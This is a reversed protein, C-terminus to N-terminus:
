FWDFGWDIHGEEMELKNFYARRHNMESIGVHLIGCLYTGAHLM